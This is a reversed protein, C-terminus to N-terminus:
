TSDSESSPTRQRRTGPRSPSGIPATFPQSGTTGLITGPSRRRIPLRLVVGTTRTLTRGEQRRGAEAQGDARAAVDYTPTVLIGFAPLPWYRLWARGIVVAVPIPGFVRSDESNSRHDGVVFVEEDPVTWRPPEARTTTPQARGNVQFVYPEDLPVDNVYLRGDDRIEIVDGAVGVVRKIYPTDDLAGWSPPPTFVVVDGRDYADWRPTLRDVLVYNGPELTRRMSEQVVQFPQAIFTQIVWFMILTLALTQIAERAM